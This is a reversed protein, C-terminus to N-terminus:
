KIKSCNEKNGILMGDAVLGNLVFSTLIFIVSQINRLMWNSIFCQYIPNEGVLNKFTIKYKIITILPM